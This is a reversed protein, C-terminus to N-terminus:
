ETGGGLSRYLDIIATLRDLQDGVQNLRASLLNQESTLVDTYNTNSTYQLLKKTYEVSKELFLVQKSRNGTKESAIQYAYLANSVEVGADM